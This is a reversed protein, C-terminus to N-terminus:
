SVRARSISALLGDWETPLVGVALRVRRMWGALQIDHAGRRALHGLLEPVVAVVLRSRPTATVLAALRDLVQEIVVRVGDETMSVAGMAELMLMVAGPDASDFLDAASTWTPRTGVRRATEILVDTLHAPLTEYTADFAWTGLTRAAEGAKAEILTTDLRARQASVVNGWSSTFCRPLCASM